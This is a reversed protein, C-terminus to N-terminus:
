LKSVDAATGHTKSFLALSLGSLRKLNSFGNKAEGQALNGLV